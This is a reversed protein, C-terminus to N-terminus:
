VCLFKSIKYLNILSLGVMCCQIIYPMNGDIAINTLATSLRIDNWEKREEDSLNNYNDVVRNICDEIRNAQATSVMTSTILVVVLTGAIAKWNM